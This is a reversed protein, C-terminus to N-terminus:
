ITSIDTFISPNNIYLKKSIALKKEERLDKGMPALLEVNAVRYYYLHDANVATIVLRANRARIFVLCADMKPTSIVKRAIVSM